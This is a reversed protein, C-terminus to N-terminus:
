FGPKWEFDNKFLAQFNTSWDLFELCWTKELHINWHEREIKIWDGLFLHNESHRWYSYKHDVKDFQHNRPFTFVKTLMLKLHKLSVAMPDGRPISLIQRGKVIFSLLMPWKDLWMKERHPFTILGPNCKFTNVLM